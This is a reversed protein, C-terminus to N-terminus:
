KELKTIFNFRAIELKRLLEPSANSIETEIHKDMLDTITDALAVIDAGETFTVKQCDFLARKAGQHAYRDLLGWAYGERLSRLTTGCVVKITDKSESIVPSAGDGGPDISVPAVTPRDPFDAIV